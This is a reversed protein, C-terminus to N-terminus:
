SRPEKITWFPAGRTATATGDGQAAKQAAKLQGELTKIGDPYSWSRKGESWSFGWDEHDFSPDLEGAEMRGTLEDQILALNGALQKTQAKIAVALDLLEDTSLAAIAEPTLEAM